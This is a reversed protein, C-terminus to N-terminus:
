DSVSFKTKTLNFNPDNEKYTVIQYASYGSPYYVYSHRLYKTTLQYKVVNDELLSKIDDPQYVYEPSAFLLAQKYQRFERDVDLNEMPSANSFKWFAKQHVVFPQTSMFYPLCLENNHADMPFGVIGQTIKYSDNISRKAQVIEYRSVGQWCEDSTNRPVFEISINRALPGTAFDDSQTTYPVTHVDPMKIDAIWKVSSANGEEDFLRVGFRYV